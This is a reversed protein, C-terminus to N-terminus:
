DFEYDIGYAACYKPTSKTIITEIKGIGLKAGCEKEYFNDDFGQYKDFSKLFGAVGGVNGKGSTETLTGKFYNNSITGKGNSWCCECSPETGLIGGVNGVGTIDAVVYCNRIAVVPTNPASNM